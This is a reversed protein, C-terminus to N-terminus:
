EESRVHILLEENHREISVREMVKIAIGAVIEPIRRDLELKANETAIKVARKIELEVACKIVEEIM